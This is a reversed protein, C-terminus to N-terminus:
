KVYDFEIEYLRVTDGEQIGKEELADIVGKRRLSRQFFNFSEDDALNISGVLNEVWSGEVVYVGNENRITFIHILSLFHAIVPSM